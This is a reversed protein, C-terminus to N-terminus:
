ICEVMYLMVVPNITERGHVGACCIIGKKGKGLKIMPIAREDHSKGIEKVQIFSKYTENLYLIGEMLEEYEYGKDLKIKWM